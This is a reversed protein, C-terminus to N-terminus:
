SKSASRSVDGSSDFTMKWSAFTYRSIPSLTFDACVSATALSTDGLLRFLIRFSNSVTLSSLASSTISSPHDAPTPHITSSASPCQLARKSSSYRYVIAGNPNIKRQPLRPRTLHSTTFMPRPHRHITRLSSSHPRRQSPEMADTSRTPSPREGRSARHSPSLTIHRRSSPGPQTVSQSRFRGNSDGPADCRM